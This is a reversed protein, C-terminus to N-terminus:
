RAATSYGFGWGAGFGSRAAYASHARRRAAGRPRVRPAARWAARVSDSLSARPSRWLRRVSSLRTEGSAAGVEGAGSAACLGPAARSQAACLSFAAAASSLRM